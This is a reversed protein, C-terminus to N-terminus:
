FQVPKWLSLRWSLLAFSNMLKCCIWRKSKTLTTYMYVTTTLMVRFTRLNCDIKLELTQSLSTKTYISKKPCINRVKHVPKCWGAHHYQGCPFGKSSYYNSWWLRKARKPLDTDLRRLITRQLARHTRLYDGSPLHYRKVLKRELLIGIAADFRISTLLSFSFSGRQTGISHNNCVRSSGLEMLTLSIFPPEKSSFTSPYYDLSQYHSM